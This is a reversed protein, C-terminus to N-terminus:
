QTEKRDTCPWRKSWIEVILDAANRKLQEPPLKRLGIEVAERMVDPKPQYGKSYCWSSKGESYDHVGEIYLRAREADLYQKPTLDFNNKASPPYTVLELLEEGTIWPTARVSQTTTLLVLALGLLVLHMRLKRPNKSNSRVRLALDFPVDQLAMAQAVSHSSRARPANDISQATREDRWRDTPM